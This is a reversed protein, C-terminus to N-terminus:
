SKRKLKDIFKKVEEESDFNFTVSHKRVDVRKSKYEKSLYLSDTSENYRSNKVINEVDRVSLKEQYIRPVLNLIEDETLTILSKAHGYSLKGLEIDEIVTSPLNLLRMINTIQPRSQHSVEGLTEKTM